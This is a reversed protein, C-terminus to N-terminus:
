LAASDYDISRLWSRPHNRRIKKAEVKQSPSEMKGAEDSVREDDDDGNDSVVPKKKSAAFKGWLWNGVGVIGGAVALGGAAILAAQGIAQGTSKTSIQHVDSSGGKTDLAKVDPPGPASEYSGIRSPANPPHYETNGYQYKAKWETYDNERPPPLTNGMQYETKWESPHIALTDEWQHKSDEDYQNMWGIDTNDPPNFQDKWSIIKRDANKVKWDVSEYPRKAPDLKDLYDIWHLLNEHSVPKIYKNFESDPLGVPLMKMEWGKTNELNEGQPVVWSGQRKYEADWIAPDWYVEPAKDQRHNMEKREVRQGWQTKPLPALQPRAWHQDHHPDWPHGADYVSGENWADDEASVELVEKVDADSARSAANTASYPGWFGAQQRRRADTWEPHHGKDIASNHKAKRPPQIDLDTNITEDVGKVDSLVAPDVGPQLDLPNPIWQGKERERHIVDLTDRQFDDLAPGPVSTFVREGYRNVPLAERGQPRDQSAATDESGTTSM